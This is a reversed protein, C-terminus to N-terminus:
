DYDCAAIPWDWAPRGEYPRCGGCLGSVYPDGNVTGTTDSPCMLDANLLMRWLAVPLPPGGQVPFFFEVQASGAKASKINTNGSADAFLKPKSLLDAALMATVEQVVDPAADLDPVGDCWPMEFLMRTASVMGRAKTDPNRLAWGTARAVDAGLYTDAFAVTAFSDYEDSGITVKVM